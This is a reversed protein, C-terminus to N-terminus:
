THVLTLDNILRDDRKRTKVTFRICVGRLESSTVSMLSMRSDYPTYEIKTEGGLYHRVIQIIDRHRPVIM